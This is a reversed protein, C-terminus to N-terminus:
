QAIDCTLYERNSKSKGSGVLFKQPIAEQADDYIAVIDKFNRIFTRSNTAYRVGEVTEVALVEMAEGDMNMDEYLVFKAVNLTEGKADAMKRVDNGKTMSYLDSPTLKETKRIINM